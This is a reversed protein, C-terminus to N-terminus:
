GGGGGQAGGGCLLLRLEDDGCGVSLGAVVVMGLVTWSSKSPNMDITFELDM